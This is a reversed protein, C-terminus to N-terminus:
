IGGEEVGEEVVDTTTAVDTATAPTTTSTDIDVVDGIDVQLPLTMTDLDQILAQMEVILPEATSIAGTSLASETQALLETVMGLGEEVKAVTELDLDTATATELRAGITVHTAQVLIISARAIETREEDTLVVPVIQELSVAERINLDAMFVILKQLLGLTSTLDTVAVEPEQARKEGAELILRNIDSLRREIDAIETTSASVKITNFLEYARTTELETQAMLGEFSPAQNGQNVVEERADNVVTRITEILSANEENSSEELVASQVELSSNFAIQAIAAGDADTTRLEALGDQVATTHEKVTAALETKVKETLKGESALTRAEGIRREMLKTEFEIKEYPSNALQGQVTENIGTKVLYLVDGPVSREAVFPAAIVFLILASGLLRAYLSHINFHLTIFSESVIGERLDGLVLDQKPLPHYEMYSLIRERLLDRESVKLNIKDAYKKLETDFSKM